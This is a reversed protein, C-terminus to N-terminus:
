RHRLGPLRIPRGGPQRHRRHRDAALGEPGLIYFETFREGPKPLLVLAIASAVAVLLAGALITYLVRNTREQAAWWGKVDLEVVLLSREDGPLRRRRRAPRRGRRYPDCSPVWDDDDPAEKEEARM